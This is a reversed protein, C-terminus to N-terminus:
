EYMNPANNIKLNKKLVLQRFLSYLNEKDPDQTKFNNM